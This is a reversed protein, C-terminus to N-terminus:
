SAWYILSRASRKGVTPRKTRTKLIKATVITFVNMAHLKRWLNRTVLTLMNLKLWSSLSFLTAVSVTAVISCVLTSDHLFNSINHSANRDRIASSQNGYSRVIAIPGKCSATVHYLIRWAPSCATWQSMWFLAVEDLCIQMKKTKSAGTRLKSELM